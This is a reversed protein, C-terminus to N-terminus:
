APPVAARIVADLVPDRDGFYDASSFTMDLRPEITIRPDNATSKQWYTSAIFAEQGITGLSVQRVDGYLNPSSGMSEGAFIVHTTQELEAAFNGAASFTVRGILAFLRGPRDVAPDQLVNLLPVYRHNDGGGNNRLDVVVRAVGGQRVREIIRDAVSSSDVVENYQVYLTGSDALYQWWISKAQDRLWPVDRPPLRHPLGSNWAVDDEVAIPEITEDTARGARDVLSFIAPGSGEIIGLGALLESVRMYLPGYALLNSPNDRPALPEVQSLVDDIPIGAIATVTSGVLHEHPARAATIVLGDSFRWFRLPYEHTGSGPIFPFIGTHGDRGSWSPMAALRVLEVLAADDNLTPIRAAVADTAALYTARDIGHYPDPHIRERQTVLTM